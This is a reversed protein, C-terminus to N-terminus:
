RIVHSGYTCSTKREKEDDYTVSDQIGDQELSYVTTRDVQTHGAQSGMRCRAKVKKKVGAMEKM